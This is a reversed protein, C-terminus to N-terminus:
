GLNEQTVNFFLFTIFLRYPFVAFSLIQSTNVRSLSTYGPKTMPTQIITVFISYYSLLSDPRSLSPSSSLPSYSNESFTAHLPSSYLHRNLPSSISDPVSLMETEGKNDKAIINIWICM